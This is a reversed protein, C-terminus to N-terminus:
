VRHVRASNSSAHDFWLFNPAFFVSSFSSLPFKAPQLIECGTFKLLNGIKVVQSCQEGTHSAGFKPPRKKKKRTILASLAIIFKESIIHAGFAM